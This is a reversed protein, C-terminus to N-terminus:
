TAAGGAGRTLPGSAWLATCPSRSYSLAAFPQTQTLLTVPPSPSAKGGRPATEADDGTDGRSPATRSLHSAGSRKRGDKYFGVALWVWDAGWQKGTWHVTGKATHLMGVSSMLSSLGNWTVRHKELMMEKECEGEESVSKVDDPIPHLILTRM